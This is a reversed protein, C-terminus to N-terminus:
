SKRFSCGYFKIIKLVKRSLFERVLSTTACDIYSLNLNFYKNKKTGNNNNNNNNNIDSNQFKNNNNASAANKSSQLM